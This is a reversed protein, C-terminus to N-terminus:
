RFLPSSSTLPGCAYPLLDAISESADPLSFPRVPSFCAQGTPGPWGAQGIKLGTQAGKSRPAGRYIAEAETSWWMWGNM